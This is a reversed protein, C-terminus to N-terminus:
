VAAGTEAAAVIADIVPKLREATALDLRLTYMDDVTETEGCLLFVTGGLVAGGEPNIFTPDLQLVDAGLPVCENTGPNPPTPATTALGLLATAILKM